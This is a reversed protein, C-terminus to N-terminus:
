WPVEWIRRRLEFDWYRLNRFKSLLNGSYHDFLEQARSAGRRVGEVERRGTGMGVKVHSWVTVEMTSRRGRVPSYIVSNPAIRTLLGGRGVGVGRPVRKLKHGRGLCLDLICLIAFRQLTILNSFNSPCNVSTYVVDLLPIKCFLPFKLYHM